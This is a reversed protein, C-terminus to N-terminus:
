KIIGKYKLVAAVSCAALLCFLLPFFVNGVPDNNPDSPTFNLLDTHLSSPITQTNTAKCPQQNQYSPM